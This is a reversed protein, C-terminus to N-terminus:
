YYSRAIRAKIITQSKETSVRPNGQRPITEPTLALSESVNIKTNVTSGQNSLEPPLLIKGLVEPEIRPRTTISCHKRLYTYLKYVISIMIVSAIVFAM